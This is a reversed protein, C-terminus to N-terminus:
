RERSRFRVQLDELLRPVYPAYRVDPVKGQASMAQLVNAVLAAKDGLADLSNLAAMSVFVGNKGATASEVLVDLAQKLDADSGYLGLAEAAAIRVYPSNDKLAAALEEHAARVGKEGRMLMGLAAWCRVASDNDKFRQKLEPVAAAELMSALEAAEFVREFPYKGANHGMDYPSGGNARSFLEGEPLFGVDRISRTLEQQAKRLRTKIQQHAPSAALNNVEDPDSQLDFLEEPAKTNWFIDQVPTLKVQDHLQKWVRTTPTQFMYDIHQGYIKHPMYNRIYVYRGDTVSRVLDDREDMRGRFGHVFSRPAELFKGLFARGQMWDPPQIGALSLV